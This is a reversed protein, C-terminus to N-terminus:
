RGELAQGVKILKSHHAELGEIDMHTLTCETFHLTFDLFCDRQVQETKSPRILCRGSVLTLNFGAAFVSRCIKTFLKLYKPVWREVSMLQTVSIRMFLPDLLIQYPWLM